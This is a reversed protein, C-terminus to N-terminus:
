CVQGRPGQKQDGPQPPHGEAARVHQRRPRGAPAREAGEDRADHDEEVGLDRGRRHHGQDGNGRDSRCPTFHLNICV